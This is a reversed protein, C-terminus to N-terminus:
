EVTYSKNLLHVYNIASKTGRQYAKSERRYSTFLNTPSLLSFIKVREEKRKVREESITQPANIEARSSLLHEHRNDSLVHCVYWELFRDFKQTQMGVGVLFYASSPFILLM